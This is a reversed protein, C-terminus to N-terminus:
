PSWDGLLLDEPNEDPPGLDVMFHVGSGSWAVESLSSGVESWSWGVVVADLHTTSLIM